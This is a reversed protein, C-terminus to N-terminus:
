KSEKKIQENKIKNNIKNRIQPDSYIEAGAEINNNGLAAMKLKTATLKSSM